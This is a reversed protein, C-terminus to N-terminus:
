READAEQAEFLVGARGEGLVGARPCCQAIGKDKDVRVDHRRSVQEGTELRCKRAAASVPNDAQEVLFNGGPIPGGTVLIQPHV